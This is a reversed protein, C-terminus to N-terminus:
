QYWLLQYDPEQELNNTELLYTARKKIYEKFEQDLGHILTTQAIQEKISKKEMKLALAQEQWAQHNSNLYDVAQQHALIIMTAKSKYKELFSKKAVLALIIQQKDHAHKNKVISSVLQLQKTKHREELVLSIPLIAFDVAEVLLATKLQNADNLPM